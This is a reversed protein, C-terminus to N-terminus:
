SIVSTNKKKGKKGTREINDENLGYANRQSKRQMTQYKQTRTKHTVFHSHQPTRCCWKLTVTLDDLKMKFWLLAWVVPPVICHKSLMYKCLYCSCDRLKLRHSDTSTSSLNTALILCISTKPRTFM